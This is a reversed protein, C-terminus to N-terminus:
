SGVAERPNRNVFPPKVVECPVKRGRVDVFLQAGPAWEGTILALGIGTGLTPSFTGSTLEGILEATRLPQDPAGPGDMV